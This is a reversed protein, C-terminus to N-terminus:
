ISAFNLDLLSYTKRYFIINIYRRSIHYIEEVRFSIIIYVCPCGQRKLISVLVQLPDFNYLKSATLPFLNYLTAGVQLTTHTYMDDKVM